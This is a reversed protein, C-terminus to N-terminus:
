YRVEKVNNCILSYSVQVKVDVALQKEEGPKSDRVIRQLEEQDKPEIETVVM